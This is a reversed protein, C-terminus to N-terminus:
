MDKKRWDFCFSPKQSFCGLINRWIISKLPTWRTSPRFTLKLAAEFDRCSGLRPILTKDLCVLPCKRFLIFM